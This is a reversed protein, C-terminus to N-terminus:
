FALIMEEIRVLRFKVTPYKSRLDEMAERADHISEWQWCHFVPRVWRPDVGIGEAPFPTHELQYYQRTLM